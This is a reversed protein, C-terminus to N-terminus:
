DSWENNFSSLYEQLLDRLKIVETQNIDIINSTEAPDDRLNFVVEIGFELDRILKYDGSRVGRLHNAYRYDTEMYVSAPSEYDSALLYRERYMIKNQDFKDSYGILSLVTPLIDVNSVLKDIVVKSNLEPTSIILPVRVLEEYLSHGHDIRGHEYLEEGHDSTIIYITKNAIDINEYEFLFVGVWGDARNVKEDYLSSLYNVDESDLFINGRSIGEERLEMQERKSGTLNGKYEFDLFRNDYGEEPVYQGHVNYGHVFLFFKNDKNSKVWEIAQPVSDEFGGFNQDDEYVDFGRDFGFDSDLGAGGTFGATQYGKEKLIEALTKIGPSISSLNAPVEEQSNTIIVKNTIKHESPYRGTFMSMHSPLTWPAM